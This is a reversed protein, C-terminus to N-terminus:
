ADGNLFCEFDTANLPRSFHYGQGENCEKDCLLAYQEATEIGEAIVRQNFSKGLGIVAKVMNSNDAHTTMDRVFSQDIKLADIPFKKLYTLSSHGTGFGGITLQIGMEKLNNLIKICMETEGMLISEALEMEVYNQPIDNDKLISAVMELFHSNRLETVSINISVPVANLGADLWSKIQKCVETLVWRGIPIILGCDEAIAMFQAPYILGHEPDEWRILAEAGIVVGSRLDFKPQYHLLFEGGKLARRLGCEIMSRQIALQNMEAKFFQYNNRGLLKAHYMAADSHQLLTDVDGGDNPYISIGISLTVYLEYIDIQHPAIFATLLKEAMVSADQPREIETLLIVFEDGGQRCVTDTTRVCAELRKAVSRLLRDGIAHGLTDNVRKFDDLDIFLLAVQKGNRQALGIARCLHEVLLLRNALGTLFDHQALYAMKLVMARSESVDHFIIAAGIIEGNKDHLPLASDEIAIETGDRRVLLSNADLEVKTRSTIAQLAPNKVAQRTVGHIINFVETIPAGLADTLSWSTMTEAATNMFTLKGSTDTILVANSISNLVVQACEKELVLACKATQLKLDAAKREVVYNLMRPLWHADMNGKYLLEHAGCLKARRAQSEDKTAHLVLILATPALAFIQDFVSVGLGDPLTLDLLIVDINRLGQEPISSLRQVADALRTVWEVRFPNGEAGALAAQILIAEVYDDEILLVSIQFDECIKLPQNVCFKPKIAKIEFSGLSLASLPRFRAGSYHHM